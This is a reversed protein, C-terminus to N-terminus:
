REGGGGGVKPQGGRPWITAAINRPRYPIPRGKARNATTYQADSKSSSSSSWLFLLLGLRFLSPPPPPDGVPGSGGANGSRVFEPVGAAVNDAAGDPSSLSCPASPAAAASAATSVAPPLVLPLLLPPLRRIMACCCCCRCTSREPFGDEATTATPSLDRDVSPQPSLMASLTVVVAVVLVVTVVRPLWPHPRQQQKPLAHSLDPRRTSARLLAIDDFASGQTTLPRGLSCYGARYTPHARGAGVGGGAEGRACASDRETSQFSRNSAKRHRYSMGVLGLLRHCAWSHLTM